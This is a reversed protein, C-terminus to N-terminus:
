TSIHKRYRYRKAATPPVPLVGFASISTILKKAVCHVEYRM